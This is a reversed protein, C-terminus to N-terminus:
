MEIAVAIHIIIGALIYIAVEDPVCIFEIKFPYAIDPIILDIGPM